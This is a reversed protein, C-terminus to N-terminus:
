EPKAPSDKAEVADAIDIVLTAYRRVEEYKKGEHTGQTNEIQSVRIGYRGPKRSALQFEGQVDTKLTTPKAKADPGAVVVEAGALPKGSFLVQFRGEDRPVIDLLLETPSQLAALGGRVLKPFYELLFPKSGGRKLVGYRCVGGLVVAGDKPLTVTYARDGKQWDVTTVKGFSDRLFLKTQAIKNIPVNEDPALADSFVVRVTTGPPDDPLIWIFHAQSVSAAFGVLLLPLVYRM